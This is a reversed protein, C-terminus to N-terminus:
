KAFAIFCLSHLATHSPLVQDGLSAKIRDSVHGVGISDSMVVKALTEPMSKNPVEDTAKQPGKAGAPKDVELHAIQTLM